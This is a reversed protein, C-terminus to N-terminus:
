PPSSTLRWEEVERGVVQGAFRGEIERTGELYLAKEPGGGNRRERVLEDGRLLVIAAPGAGRDETDGGRVLSTTARATSEGDRIVAAEEDRRGGDFSQSQDELSM